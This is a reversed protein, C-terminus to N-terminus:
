VSPGRAEPFRQRAEPARPRAEPPMRRPEASRRRAEASKGRAEPSSGSPEPLIGRFATPRQHRPRPHAQREFAPRQRFSLPGTTRPRQVKVVVQGAVPSGVSEPGSRKARGRERAQRLNPHACRRGRLHHVSRAHPGGGPSGERANAHHGAQGPGQAGRRLKLRATNGDGEQRGPRIRRSPSLDWKHADRKEVLRAIISRIEAVSEYVKGTHKRSFDVVEVADWVIHNQCVAQFWFTQVGVSRKGVESNWVFFGPAFAEGNIEAWGTPDILFFPFRSVSFPTRKNAAGIIPLRLLLATMASYPWRIASRMPWVVLIEDTQGGDNRREAILRRAVYGRSRMRGYSAPRRRIGAASLMYIGGLIKRRSGSGAGVFM